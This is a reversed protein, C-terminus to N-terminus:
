TGTMIRQELETLLEDLNLDYHAAVHELPEFLANCCICEGAEEYRRFVAEAHRSRRLVDLVTM